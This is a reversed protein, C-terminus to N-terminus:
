TTRTVLPDRDWSKVRYEGGGGWTERWYTFQAMCKSNKKFPFYTGNKKVKRQNM